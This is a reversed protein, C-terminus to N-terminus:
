SKKTIILKIPPRLIFLILIFLTLRSVAIGQPETEHAISSVGLLVSAASAAVLAVAGDGEVEEEM